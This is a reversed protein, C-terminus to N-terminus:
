FYVVTGFKTDFYPQKNYTNLPLNNIKQYRDFKNLLKLLDNKTAPKDGEKIFLNIIGEAILAGTTANGVGALSMKDVKGINNKEEELALKIKNNNKVRRHYAKSRCSGSCYQQFYRRKPIYEEHCYNCKYKHTDM